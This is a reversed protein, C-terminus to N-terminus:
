GPPVGVSGAIVQWGKEGERWIRVYRYPGEFPIGRMVGTMEADVVTVVTDGHVALRVISVDVRSLREAGSRHLDLDEAKSYVAGDPGVFLLDDHILADLEEVDSTLMAVRLRAEAVRVAIGPDDKPKRGSSSGIVVTPTM